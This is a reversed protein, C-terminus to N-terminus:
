IESKAEMIEKIRKINAEDPIKNYLEREEFRIGLWIKYLADVRHNAYKNQKM